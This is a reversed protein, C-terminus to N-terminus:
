TLTAALQTSDSAPPQVLGRADAFTRYPSNAGYLWKL